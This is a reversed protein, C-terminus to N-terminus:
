WRDRTFYYYRFYVLIGGQKWCEPNDFVAQACGYFLRRHASTLSYLFQVNLTVAKGIIHSL